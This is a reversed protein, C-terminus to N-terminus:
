KKLKLAEDYGWLTYAYKVLQEIVERISDRELNNTKIIRDVKEQLEEKM